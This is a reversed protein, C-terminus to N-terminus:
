QGGKASLIEALRARMVKGTPGRPIAHVRVFRTPIEHADIRREFLKKLTASKLVADAIYVLAVEEGTVGNGDPIGTVAFDLVNIPADKLAEGFIREVELPMVKLGGVNIVDKLRGSLYVYGAEDHWGLDGSRFPGRRPLGVENLYGVMVM